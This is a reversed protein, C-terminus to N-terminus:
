KISETLGKWIKQWINLNEEIVVEETAPEIYDKKPLNIYVKQKNDLKQMGLLEKAMQEVNNLNLSSEINVKLQENEKQISSVDQKLKEKDNFSEAILSNRYSISFLALFGIAIYLVLKARPKIKLKTKTKRNVKKVTSTKKSKYQNPNNIPEYEPKLKRPSTGYEYRRNMQYAM